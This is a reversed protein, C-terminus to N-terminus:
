KGFRWGLYLQLLYNKGDVTPIYSPQTGSSSPSTNKYLNNLSLNARAGILLGMYPHTEVGVGIGYDFRNYYDLLKGYQTGYLPNQSSDSKANLLYAVQMGVQIQLYRTISICLYEPLMIYDLNVSGSNGNTQYDYGQRSFVLETKSGLIKKPSTSYFIGVNFGTSSSNNISSANTVNAFNLGAKIGIQTFGLCPFILSLCFLIKKM